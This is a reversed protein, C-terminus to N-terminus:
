REVEGEVLPVAEFQWDASLDRPFLALQLYRFAVNVATMLREALGAGIVPNRWTEGSASPDSLLRGLVAFRLVLYGAILAAYYPLAARLRSGPAWLARLPQGAARARAWEIGLVLAPVPNTCAPCAALALLPRIRCTYVFANFPKAIM